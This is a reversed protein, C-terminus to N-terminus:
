STGQMTRLWLLLSDADHAEGDRRRLRSPSTAAYRGSPDYADIPHSM